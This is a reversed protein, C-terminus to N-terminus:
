RLEELTESLKEAEGEINVDLLEIEKPIFTTGFSDGLANGKM